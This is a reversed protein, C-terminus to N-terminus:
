PDIAELPSDLIWTDKPVETPQVAADPMLFRFREMQFRSISDAIPNRSGPIYKFAISFEHLVAFCFLKRVLTMIDPTPCTGKDWIQTIPKNDTLFVIRKGSWEHGWTFAAAVIAFLEHFDIGKGACQTNWEGQIWRTGYIAGFGKGSADTHLKLDSSLISKSQPIISRSNWTPLWALWWQVDKRAEVNLNVHHHNEKVTCSLDILRRLFLRGPRVVLAVHSLKGILSLLQQKTATRRNNWKPLLALLSDLKDRPVAATMSITDIDIGLYPLVNAPGLLKDEAVPINLFRFVELMTHSQQLALVFVAPSILLYDDSYHIAVLNYKNNIIWCILDAFDTFISASSPGGFPLKLDVCFQGEWCYVLLPWDEQRVPLLRYAHQIDVKTLYCGRGTLRVLRTAEDFPTYKCPFEDKSIFENISCGKPQSLDMILRISGDSKPAAGLPSIHSIPFPPAPFPGATHGRDLERRIADTVGKKHILASKNNPPFTNTLTGRFGLDFGFEFGSIISAVLSQDPHDALLEKLRPIHVFKNHIGQPLPNSTGLTSDQPRMVTVIPVRISMPGVSKAYTSSDAVADGPVTETIGTRAATQRMGFHEQTPENPTMGPGQHLEQQRQPQTTKQTTTPAGTPLM